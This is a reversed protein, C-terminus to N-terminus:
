SFFVSVHLLVPARLLAPPPRLLKLFPSSFRFPCHLLQFNVTSTSSPDTPSLGQQTRPRSPPLHLSPRLSLFLPDSSSPGICVTRPSELTVWGYAIKGRGRERERCLTSATYKQTKERQVRYLCRNSLSISYKFLEALNWWVRLLKGEDIEKEKILRLLTNEWERSATSAGNSLEVPYKLCSFFSLWDILLM